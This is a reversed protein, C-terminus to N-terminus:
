QQNETKYVDTFLLHSDQFGVSIGIQELLLHCPKVNHHITKTVKILPILEKPVTEQAPNVVLKSPPRKNIELFRKFNACITPNEKELWQFYEHTPRCIPIAPTKLPINIDGYTGAFIEQWAYYYYWNSSMPTDYDEKQKISLSEYWTTRGAKIDARIKDEFACVKQIYKHASVRGHNYQDILLEEFFDQAFTTAEKCIDSGKFQVGKIDIDAKPLIVGEQVKVIGAYHKKANALILSPYLFENKMAMVKAFKGRAGHAVSYLYLGHAVAETIWYVMCCSIQYAKPSIDYVNGTYWAVWDKVTFIVSDTDSIVASNRLMHKRTVVRARNLPTNIFLDMIDVFKDLREKVYQTICIFKKALDPRKKPLDYVQIESDGPDVHEHFAVNIFIVLAGDLKFLDDPNVDDRFQVKSVDFMNDFYKRFIEENGMIVHRLNQFYWFFQVEENTLSSIIRSPQAFEEDKWIRYRRMTEKYFNLLDDKTVWKLGYRNMVDAVRASDIGKSLHSVLHMTLEAISFWAFNGGLVAEIMSNAYGILARGSSTIANYNPKNYFISYPSGYNGPLSNVNIKILTQAYYHRMENTKDGAAKAKLMEKKHFKRQALRDIIMNITTGLKKEPQMYVSGSPSILNDKQQEWWQALDVAKIEPKGEIKTEVIVATMPHYRSRSIEKAVELAKDHDCRYNREIYTTLQDLYTKLLPPRSM